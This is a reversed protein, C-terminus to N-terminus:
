ARKRQKDWARARERQQENVSYYLMYNSAQLLHHAAQYLVHSGWWLLRGILFKM